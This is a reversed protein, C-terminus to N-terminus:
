EESETVLDSYTNEFKTVNNERYESIFKNAVKSVETSTVANLKVQKYKYAITDKKEAAIDAKFQQEGEATIAYPETVLGTCVMFHIGYDTIVATYAGKGQAVIDRAANAFEIVYNSDSTWPSYLYGNISTLSGPDTSFTYILDKFVEFNADFDEEAIQGIEGNEYKKMTMGALALYDAFETMDIAYATVDTVNWKHQMVGNDDEEDYGRDDAVTVKGIFSGLAATDTVTYEDDFTFEGDAYTGYNLYAWTERQDKAIIQNALALRFAEIEVNSVGVKAKFDSLQTKQEETFGILLNAVYGYGEFPSYM